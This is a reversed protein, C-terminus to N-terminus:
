LIINYIINNYSTISFGLKFTQVEFLKFNYNGNLKVSSLRNDINTQINLKSCINLIRVIKILEVFM